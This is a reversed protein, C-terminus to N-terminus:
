SSLHEVKRRRGNGTVAACSKTSNRAIKEVRGGSLLLLLARLEINRLFGWGKGRELSGGIVELAGWSLLSM